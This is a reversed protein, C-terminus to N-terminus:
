STNFTVTDKPAGVDGTSRVITLLARVTVRNGAELYTVTQYPTGFKTAPIDQIITCM